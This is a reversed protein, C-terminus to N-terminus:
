FELIQTEITVTQIVVYVLMLVCGVGIWTPKDVGYINALHALGCIAWIAPVINVTSLIIKKM